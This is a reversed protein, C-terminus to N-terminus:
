VLTPEDIFVTEIDFREALEKGVAKVGVTESHYHGLYLVNIKGELALHHDEHRGEGTVFCDVGSAIAEPLASSGGGSVIALTQTKQPGFPLALVEGGIEARWASALEDLTMPAPLDGAFGLTVGHYDGFPEGNELGVLRALEANNGLEAHADLPLHAAYLSIGHELLFKIHEYDRGTVSRIGGGWIIGHHAVIMECGLDAAQEYVRLAADTALGVRSVEDSGQVQLGNMSADEIRSIGLRDNLYEVIVDRKTM